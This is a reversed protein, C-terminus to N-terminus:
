AAQRTQRLRRTNQVEFTVDASSVLYLFKYGNGEHSQWLLMDTSLHWVHGLPLWSLSKSAAALAYWLKAHPAHLKNRLRGIVKSILCRIASHGLFRLRVIAPSCTPLNPIHVCVHLQHLSQKHSIVHSCAPCSTGRRDRPLVDFMVTNYACDRAVNPADLMRMSHANNSSAQNPVHLHIRLRKHAIICICEAVM